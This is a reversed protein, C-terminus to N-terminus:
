WRARGHARERRSSQPRSTRRRWRASIPRAREGAWPMASRADGASPDSRGGASDSREANRLIAIRRFPGRTVDRARARCPSPACRVVACAGRWSSEGLPALCLALTIDGRRAPPAVCTMPGATVGRARDQLRKASAGTAGAPGCEPSASCSGDRRTCRARHRRHRVRRACRPVRRAPSV